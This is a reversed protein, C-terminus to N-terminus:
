RLRAGSAAVVPRTDSSPTSEFVWDRHLPFNWLLFIAGRAIAWALRYDIPLLGLVAVGGTNLGLSSLSVFAYRSMQPGLAGGRGDFAWIRGLTFSAAAGVLSGLATAAWPTLGGIEVLAVVCAFDVATAFVATILGRALSNRGTARVPPRDRGLARLVMAFRQAATIQSSVALLVLGGVALWHMPHAAGPAEFAVAVVPALATSIGLLVIREARQVMGGRVEVGLAEGRARVYSTIFSGGLAALVAILVWSDRYYWALGALVAADAYRDLISDLAAGARTQQGTARALRGDLVDLIGSAIYLWGGLAFRGGALAAGAALALLLSLMTIADPPLRTARVLAWFPRIVWSFYARLETGLFITGGRAEFEADRWRGYLRRRILYVGLGGMFWVVLFAAPLLATWVRTFDDLDGRLLDTLDPM